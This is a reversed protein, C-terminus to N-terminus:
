RMRTPQEPTTFVIYGDRYGDEVLLGEHILGTIASRMERMSKLKKLGHKGKVRREYEFFPIRLSENVDVTTVEGSRMWEEVQPLTVGLYDALETPTLPVLEILNVNDSCEAGHNTAKPSAALYTKRHGIGQEYPEVVVEYYESHFENKNISTRSM